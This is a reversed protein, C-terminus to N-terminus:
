SEKRPILHSDVILRALPDSLFPEGLHDPRIEDAIVEVKKSVQDKSYAYGTPNGVRPRSLYDEVLRSADSFDLAVVFFDGVGNTVKFLKRPLAAM